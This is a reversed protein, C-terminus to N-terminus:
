KGRDKSGIAVKKDTSKTPRECYQHKTKSLRKGIDPRATQLIFEVVEKHLTCSGQKGLFFLPFRRKNSLPKYLLIM